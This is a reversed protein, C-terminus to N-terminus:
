RPDQREQQIAWSIGFEHLPIPSGDRPRLTRSLLAARQADTLRAWIARSREITEDSPDPNPIGIFLNYGIDGDQRGLYHGDPTRIVDVLGVHKAMPGLNMLDILISTAEQYNDM